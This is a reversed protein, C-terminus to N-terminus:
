NKQFNMDLRKMYEQKQEFSSHVYRNLTIEVSSHGLIESLAKVDFGLTICTTAFIHRLAHFHVSPLGAKRLISSFRYQMTRPEIAKESGSVVYNEPKGKFEKLLNVIGDSLPITRKSSESKPDTIVLKTKSGMASSQIRQMTKSVTLLRKELDVDKWQLACLEGIRIGTSLSLATGLTDLGPNDSIHQKLQLLEKDDFIRIDPKKKKPLTIGDMPNFIRYVKVAYKFITKMLVIIDSIYRNSLGESQKTKMFAYIDSEKVADIRKKGFVPLIHKNAKMGYNAATSKKVRHCISQYWEQYLESVTQSCEENLTALHRAKAMKDKVEDRTHGFFYQFNRRGDKRKGRSIRGEFRGDKRYYINYREM